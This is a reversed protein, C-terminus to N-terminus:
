GRILYITNIDKVTLADYQAQTMEVYTVTPINVNIKNYGLKDTATYSGNEVYTVERTADIDAQLSNM